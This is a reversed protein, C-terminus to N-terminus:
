SGLMGAIINPADTTNLFAENFSTQALTGSVANNSFGFLFSACSAGLIVIVNIWSTHPKIRDPDFSM